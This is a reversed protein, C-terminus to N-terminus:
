LDSLSLIKKRRIGLESFPLLNELTRGKEMTSQLHTEEPKSPLSKEEFKTQYQTKEESKSPKVPEPQSPHKSAAKTTRMYRSITKESEEDIDLLYVTSSSYKKFM